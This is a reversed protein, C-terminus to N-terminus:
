HYLQWGTVTSPPTFVITLSPRNDVTLNQVSNFRKATTATSEDGVLIWGFNGEAGDVWAQVDAVM